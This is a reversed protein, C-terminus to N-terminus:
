RRRFLARVISFVAASLESFIVGNGLFIGAVVGPIGVDRPLLIPLILQVPDLLASMTPNQSGLAAPAFMLGIVFGLGIAIIVREPYLRAAGM